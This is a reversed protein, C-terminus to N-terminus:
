DLIAAADITTNSELCDYADRDVASGAANEVLGKM